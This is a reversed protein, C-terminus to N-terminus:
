PKGQLQNYIDILHELEYLVYKSGITEQTIFGWGAIQEVMNRAMEPTYVKDVEEKTYVKKALIDLVKKRLIASPDPEVQKPIIKALAQGGRLSTLDGNKRMEIWTSPGGDNRTALIEYGISKALDQVLYGPTYCAFHQEVLRVAKENDCDNITIILLGGARLKQHIETLYKKIIEFPKFNFFNYALCMGFQGNPIKHLVGHIDNEDVVYPRLRRRFSEPFQTLGPELLDYSQDIIYLPDYAVMEQIFTEKGPRIIMGPFRWDTYTLLRSRLVLETEKSIDPRRNLVYEATEHVVGKEYLQYSDAFWPQEAERIKNTVEQKLANLEFEVTDYLRRINEQCQALNYTRTVSPTIENTVTHVIKSLDLEALTRIDTVSLQDLQIKFAILESLIMNGSLYPKSLTKQTPPM